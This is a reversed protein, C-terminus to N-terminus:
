RSPLACNVNSVSVYSTLTRDDICYTSPGILWAGVYTQDMAPDRNQASAGPIATVGDITVDPGYSGEGGLSVASECSNAVV